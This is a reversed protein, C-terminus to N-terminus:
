NAGDSQTIRAVVPGEYGISATWVGDTSEIELYADEHDTTNGFCCRVLVLKKGTTQNARMCDDVDHVQFVGHFPESGLYSASHIWVAQADIVNNMEVLMRKTHM